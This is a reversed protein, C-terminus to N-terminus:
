GDKMDILICVRYSPLAIDTQNEATCGSGGVTGLM